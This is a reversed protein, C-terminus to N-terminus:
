STALSPLVDAAFRAVHARHDDSGAVLIISEAGAATLDTVTRACDAPTGAVALSRLVDDSM